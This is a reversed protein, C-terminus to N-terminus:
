ASLASAAGQFIDHVWRHARHFGSPKAYMLICEGAVVDLQLERCLAVVEPSEAGQQLWVHRVGDAAAGRVVDVASAPPVVLLMADVREPLDSLRAYCRTSGITKAIPHIPYVRYGKASLERCAYNGFKRGDRSVGVVAVAAQTIFAQISDSTSV